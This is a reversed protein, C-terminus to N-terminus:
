ASLSPPGRFPILSDTSFSSSSFLETEDKQLFIFQPLPLDIPTTLFLTGYPSALDNDQLVLSEVSDLTEDLEASQNVSAASLFSLFVAIVIVFSFNSKLLSRKMAVM